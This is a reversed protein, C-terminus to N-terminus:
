KLLCGSWQEKEEDVTSISIPEKAYKCEIPLYGNDTKIVLDFERDVTIGNARGRFYFRDMDTALFSFQGM